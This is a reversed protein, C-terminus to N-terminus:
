DQPFHKLASSQKGIDGLPLTPNDARTLFRNEPLKLHAKDFDLLKAAPSGYHFHAYWLLRPTDGKVWIEYEQLYDNRGDARKGLNQMPTPRRAEVIGQELLDDLMGNTPNKSLLTQETRLTRGKKILKQAESRLTAILEHDPLQSAIKTARADLEQAESVLMHQLDVPLMNQRAYGQVKLEYDALAQLRKRAEAVLKNIDLPSPAPAAPAPTALRYKGQSAPLWTEERGTVSNHTTFKDEGHLKEGVLWQNDESQFLSKDNKQVPKPPRKKNIIKRARDSIDELAKLLQTLAEQNFYPAYGAQWTKLQVRFQEYDAICSTLMQNIRARGSNILRVSQQAMLVRHMHHTAAELQPHLHFWSADGIMAYRELMPLLQSARFIMMNGKTPHNDVDRLFDAMQKKDASNVKKRWVKIDALAEDMIDFEKLVGLQADDREKLLRQARSLDLETNLQDTLRGSRNIWEVSRLRANRWRASTVSMVNFAFNEINKQTVTRRQGRCSPLLDESEQHLRKSASVYKKEQADLEPGRSLKGADDASEYRERLQGIEHSLKNAANSDANVRSFRLELRRYARDTFWRPLWRRIAAPWLPDMGEAVHGLVQGGGVLGGDFTTGHVAYYTNWHGDADLAVPQRYSKLRTGKLRLTRGDLAVQYIRGDRVIFDGDAHRYVNRYFGSTEPQLGNLSIDKEYAYGEFRAAIHRAQRASPAQLSDPSTLTRRLQRQLTNARATGSAVAAGPLLDMGADILSVLMANIEAIGRKHEGASFERVAQNASTWADYLGIVTGVFPVIGLAMKLYGYLRVGKLAYKARYLDDNSRSTRRHAEILRGMEADLMHSALSTHTPWSPGIGILGNFHMLVARDIRARHQQANGILARGALYDVMPIHLCLNFLGRRAQELTAFSRLFRGDPSDPLYLLTSGRVQDVIFTVGSLTTPLDETDAGGVTLYAPHLVIRKGPPQWAQPSSADIATLLTQLQEANLIGEAHAMRSQIQLLLRHPELLCERRYDREFRPETVLGRYVSRILDEYRQALNLDKVTRILYQGTIGASLSAHDAAIDAKIVIKMFGMRDGVSEDINLLALEHVDLISRAKSAIWVTKTPTGPTAGAIVQQETSVSDPLDLRITFAGKLAFDERLRTAVHQSAFDTASPLKLDHLADAKQLARTQREILAKLQEREARSVRTLWAPLQSALLGSRQQEILLDLARERANNIPVQLRSITQEGLTQLEAELQEALQPGVYQSHLAAAQREFAAHQARLGSELPDGPIERLHLTHETDGPLIHFLERQLAQRSAFRQLGGGHGPWYLLLSGPNDPSNFVARDAFVLVGDLAAGDRQVVSGPHLSAVAAASGRDSPKPHDLVADLMALEATSIQGLLWQIGAETRLAELRSRYLASFQTNITTVDLARSRHILARAAEVTLHQQQHLRYLRHELDELQASRPALSFTEGLFKQLLQRYHELTNRQRQLSIEPSLNDFPIDSAADVKTSISPMAPMAFVTDARRKLDQQDAAELHQGILDIHAQANLPAQDGDLPSAAHLQTGLQLELVQRAGDRLALTHLAFDLPGRWLTDDIVLHKHNAQLWDQLDSRQRFTSVAPNEVPMYLLQAGTQDTGLTLVWAGAPSDARSGKQLALQEICVQQGALTPWDPLVTQLCKLQEAPLPGNAFSHQASAELHSRYLQEVRQRRSVATGPARDDWWANWRQTLHQALDLTQLQQLLKGAPLSGGPGTIHSLRAQLISQDPHRALYAFVQTLSFQRVSHESAPFFHFIVQDSDLQLQQRILDRIADRVNPSAALLDRMYECGERWRATASLLLGENRPAFLAPATLDLRTDPPSSIQLSQPM